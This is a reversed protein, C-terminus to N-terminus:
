IHYNRHNQDTLPIIGLVIQQNPARDTQNRIKTAVEIAREGGQSTGDLYYDLLVLDHASLDPLTEFPNCVTVCKVEEKLMNVLRLFFRYEEIMPQADSSVENVLATSSLMADSGAIALLREDTSANTSCGLTALEDLVEVNDALLNALPERQAKPIRDLQPPRMADDIIAVSLTGWPPQEERTPADVELKHDSATQSGDSPNAAEDVQPDDIPLQAAIGQKEMRSDMSQKQARENEDGKATKPM